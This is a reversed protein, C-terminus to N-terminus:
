WGLQEAIIKSGLVNRYVSNDLVSIDDFYEKLRDQIVLSGGGCCKISYDNYDTFGDGTLGNIIQQIFNDKLEQPISLRNARIRADIDSISYNRHKTNLYYESVNKYLEHIGFELTGSKEIDMVGLKTYTSYNINKSGIDFIIIFNTLEEDLSYYAAQSEGVVGIKKFKVTRKRKTIGNMPSNITFEFSKELRKKLIDKNSLQKNPLNLMLNVSVDDPYPIMTAVAYLIFKELGEKEPKFSDHIYDGQSIAYCKDDLVIAETFDITNIDVAKLKSDFQELRDKYCIKYVSNGLDIQITEAQRSKHEVKNTNNNNNM